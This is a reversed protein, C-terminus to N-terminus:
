YGQELRLVSINPLNRYRENYDLGYGVVFEDPIAFGVYDVDVDTLRREPKDLLCCIKVSNPNRTIINDVLYHLTLGTDIIDEVILIDKGDVPEDLDKLIRVIGSSKTSSGYSSVAIFDTTLPLDIARILDSFFVIAGKLVGIMLLDKNKYDETIDRGLERIRKKIQEEDLLVRELIEEM